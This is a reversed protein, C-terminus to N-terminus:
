YEHFSNQFKSIISKSQGSTVRHLQCDSRLIWIKSVIGRQEQHNTRNTHMRCVNRMWRIWIGNYAIYIYTHTHPMVQVPPESPPQCVSGRVWGGMWVGFAWLYEPNKGHFKLVGLHIVPWLCVFNNIWPTFLHIPPWLSIVYLSHEYWPVCNRHQPDTVTHPSLGMDTPIIIFLMPAM